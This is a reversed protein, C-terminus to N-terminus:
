VDKDKVMKELKEKFKEIDAEVLADIEKRITPDIQDLLLGYDETAMKLLMYRESEYPTIKNLFKELRKSNRILSRRRERESM